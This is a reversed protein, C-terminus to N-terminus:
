FLKNQRAFFNILTTSKVRMARKEIIQDILSGFSFEKENLSFASSSVYEEAFIRKQYKNLPTTSILLAYVGRKEDLM